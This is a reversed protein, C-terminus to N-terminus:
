NDEMNAEKDVQKFKRRVLKNIYQKNEKHSGGRVPRCCSCTIGGPGIHPVKKHENM